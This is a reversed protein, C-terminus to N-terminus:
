SKGGHGPLGVVLRKEAVRLEAEGEIEGQHVDRGAVDLGECRFDGFGEGVHDGDLGPGDGVGIFAAHDAVVPQAVGVEGRGLLQFLGDGLGDGREFIERFFDLPSKWCTRSM